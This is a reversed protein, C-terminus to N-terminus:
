KLGMSNEPLQDAQLVVSKGKFSSVDMFAWWDPEANALEIQFERETKGNVMLRLTRKTAGNKVPLNLYHKDVKIPLQVDALILGAIKLDYQIIQDVSIHGWGGTAEDVIQFAVDKGEFESTDWSQWDM